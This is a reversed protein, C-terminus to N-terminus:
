SSGHPVMPFWPSLPWCRPRVQDPKAVSARSVGVGIAHGIRDLAVDVGITITLNVPHIGVIIAVAEESRVFANGIRITVTKGVIQVGIAVVVALGIAAAVSM